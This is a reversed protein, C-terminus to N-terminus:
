RRLVIAEYEPVGRRVALAIQRAQLLLAMRYNVMKRSPLHRFTQLRRLEYQAIFRRRGEETLLVGPIKHESRFHDPQLIGGRFATIVITDIILPRFEEMLDLALSPRQKADLHLYGFSPDLGAAAVAGTAETSLLTYGYSLAANAPDLPPNRNRGVFGAWDPLLSSFAGFYAASGDGEHGRVNEVAAADLVSRRAREIRAGASSVNEAQKDDARRLLVARQNALKGAVFTKSLETAFTSDSTTEIQRRLLRPNTIRADQLRGLFKGRRSLFSTEISNSLAWTRAGASLGVAGHIVVSGIQSTPVTLLDDKNISVIIQGKSIRVTAGDRTVHLTKRDPERIGATPDNTPYISNFDEGLFAFGDAFFAIETKDSGLELGIEAAAATAVTLAREADTQSRAPVLIDDAYRIPWMGARGMRLDFDNLYLNCLLPSLPGGQPAGSLSRHLRGNDLTPRELLSTILSLLDAENARDALASVLISRDLSDFCDHIDTRLVWGFGADRREVVAQIADVVGYGPRYAFSTPVFEADLLPNLIQVLAREVVRDRVSPIHLERRGGDDDFLDFAVLHQPRYDGNLMEEGIHTLNDDLNEAFRRSALSVDGDDLDNSLVADWAETLNKKSAARHVVSM